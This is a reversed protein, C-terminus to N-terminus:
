WPSRLPMTWPHWLGLRTQAAAAPTQRRGVPVGGGAAAQLPSWPWAWGGCRRSRARSQRGRRRSQRRSLPAPPPGPGTSTSRRQLGGGGSSRGGSSNVQTEVQWSEDQSPQRLLRHRSGILAAADDVERGAVVLEGARQGDCVGADHQAARPHATGSWCGPPLAPRSSALAACRKSAGGPRGRKKRQQRRQRGSTM